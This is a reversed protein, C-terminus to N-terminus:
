PSNILSRVDATGSLTIAGESLAIQQVQPAIRVSRLDVLPNLAAAFQQLVTEPVTVGGLALVQPRYNLISGEAQVTGATTFAIAQGATVLTGQARVGTPTFALQVNQVTSAATQRSRLYDNVADDTIRATFNAQDISTIQFPDRQFEVGRLTLVLSDIVLGPVPRVRRGNLRVQDASTERLGDVDATYRDAPGIIEPARRVIEREALSEQAEACGFLWPLAVLALACLVIWRM